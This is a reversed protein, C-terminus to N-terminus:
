YITGPSSQQSYSPAIASHPQWFPSLLSGQETPASLYTDMHWMNDRLLSQQLELLIKQMASPSLPEDIMPDYENMDPEAVTEFCRQYDAEANMASWHLETTDLDQMALDFARETDDFSVTHESGDDSASEAQITSTASSRPTVSSAWFATSRSVQLLENEAQSLM